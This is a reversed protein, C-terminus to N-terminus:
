QHINKQYTEPLFILGVIFCIFCIGVPYWLGSYMNGTQAVISYTIAPMLGGFLGNGLHYPLSMATYRIRSPFLEVLFAAQPGYVMCSIMLLYTLLMCIMFIHINKTNPENLYHHEKLAIRLNDLLQKKRAQLQEDPLGVGSFSDIRQTGLTIFSEKTDGLDLTKYSVGLTMLSQKAVDCSTVFKAHGSWDFQWSCEKLNTHLVVPNKQQAVILQPNVAGVLAHYVPFYSLVGLLCGMLMINRRGVKDSLQAFFILFPMCILLGVAVCMSAISPDVKLIQTLFYFAYFNGCFAMVSQAIIVSFLAVLVWKLNKWQGFTELIPSRSIEGQLKLKMFVPSEQMKVRIYISILLFIACLLFPFRWGFNEFQNQGLYKQTMYIVSISMFYGVSSSVQIWATYAGRKNEPAFEAVYISAGGYEGGLAIGQLMRLTILIIPAAIGISQYNPLCGVLFTSLGMITITLLFTQKRGLIDGMRGFILAGLPRFLFGVAFTLLAFIFATNKNLGSFFQNAIVSALYGYLYFDYWEFVTGLSSAMVLKKEQWTMHHSM